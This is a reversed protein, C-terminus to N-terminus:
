QLGPATFLGSIATLSDASLHYRLRNTPVAAVVSGMLAFEQPRFEPYPVHTHDMLAMLAQHQPRPEITPKCESDEALALLYIAQLRRPKSQFPHGFPRLDWTM